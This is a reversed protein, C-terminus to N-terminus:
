RWAALLGGMLTLCLMWYGVNIAVYKVSKGEFVANTAFVPLVIFLGILFFAHFAGHTFIHNDAALNTKYYDVWNALDSGPEAVM